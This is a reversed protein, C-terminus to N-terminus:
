QPHLGTVQAVSPALQPDTDSPHPPISSQPFHAVGAVHPPPRMALRQPHMGLAQVALSQPVTESPQPPTSL